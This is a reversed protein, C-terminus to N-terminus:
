TLRVPLGQRVLAGLRVPSATALVPLATFGVAKAREVKAVPALRVRPAVMVAKWACRYSTLLSTM